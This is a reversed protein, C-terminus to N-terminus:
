QVRASNVIRFLSITFTTCWVLIAVTLIGSLTRQQHCLDANYVNSSARCVWNTDYQSQFSLSVNASSFIIFFLELLVLRMKTKPDRLGLPQSTFEDYSVFLLYIISVAQLITSMLPSPQQNLRLETTAHTLHGAIGLSVACLCLLIVRFFLPIYSNQTITHIVKSRWDVKNDNIWKRARQKIEREKRKWLHQQQKELDTDGEEGVTTTAYMSEMDDKVDFISDLREGGRWHTDLDYKSTIPMEAIDSHTQSIPIQVTSLFNSWKNTYGEDDFSFTFPDNLQGRTALNKEDFVPEDPGCLHGMHELLKQADIFDDHTMVGTKKLREMVYVPVVHAEHPYQLPRKTDVSTLLQELRKQPKKPLAPAQDAPKDM